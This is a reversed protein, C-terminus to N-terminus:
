STSASLDFAAGETLLGAVLDGRQDRARRSDVDAILADLDAVGDELLLLAAVGHCALPRLSRGRRHRRGRCAGDISIAERRGDLDQLVQHILSM